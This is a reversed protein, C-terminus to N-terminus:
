FSFRDSEKLVLLKRLLLASLKKWRVLLSTFSCRAHQRLDAGAGARERGRSAQCEVGVLPWGTSATALGMGKLLVDEFGVKQSSRCGCSRPYARGQGGGAPGWMEPFGPSLPADSDPDRHVSEQVTQCRSTTPIRRLFVPSGLHCQHHLVWM